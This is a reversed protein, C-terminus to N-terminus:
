EEMKFDYEEIIRKFYEELIIKEQYYGFPPEGTLLELALIGLSYFDTSYSVLDKKYDVEIKNLTKFYLTSMDPSM